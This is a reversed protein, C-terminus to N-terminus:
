RKRVGMEHLLTAVTRGAVPGQTKMSPGSAPSQEGRRRGTGARVEIEQVGNTLQEM